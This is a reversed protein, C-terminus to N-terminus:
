TAEFIIRTIDGETPFNDTDDFRSTRDHNAYSVEFVWEGGNAMFRVLAIKALTQMPLLKMTQRLKEDLREALAQAGSRSVLVRERTGAITQSQQGQLLGSPNTQLVGQSVIGAGLLVGGGSGSLVQAVGAGGPSGLGASIGGAGGFGLLSGLFGSAM